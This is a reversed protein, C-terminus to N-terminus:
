YYYGASGCAECIPFPPESGEPFEVAEGYSCEFCEFESVRGKSGEKIKWAKSKADKKKRRKETKRKRKSESM